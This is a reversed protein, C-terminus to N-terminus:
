HMGLFGNLGHLLVEVYQALLRQGGANFHYTVNDSSIAGRRVVDLAALDDVFGLFVGMKLDHTAKGAPKVIGVSVCEALGLLTGDASRCDDAALGTILM